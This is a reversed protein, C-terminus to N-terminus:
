KYYDRQPLPGDFRAELDAGRMPGRLEVESAATSVGSEGGKDAATAAPRRGSVISGPHFVALVAMCVFMVAADFIYLWYEQDQLPSSYGM